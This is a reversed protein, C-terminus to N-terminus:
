NDENGLEDLFYNINQYLVETDNIKELEEYQETTLDDATRLPNTKGMLIKEERSPESEKFWKRLLKKQKATLERM